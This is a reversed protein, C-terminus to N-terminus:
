TSINYLNHARAYRELQLLLLPNASISSLSSRYCAIPHQIPTRHALALAWSCQTLTHWTDTDTDTDIDPSPIYKLSDLSFSSCRVVEAFNVLSLPHSHPAINPTRIRSDPASSRSNQVRARRLSLEARIAMKIVDRSMILQSSPVNWAITWARSLRNRFTRWWMCIIYSCQWNKVCWCCENQQSCRNNSMKQIARRINRDGSTMRNRRFDYKDFMNSILYYNMKIIITHIPFILFHM